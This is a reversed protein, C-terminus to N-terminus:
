ELTLECNLKAPHLFILKYYGRKRLIPFDPIGACDGSSYRFLVPINEVAEGLAPLFGTQKFGFGSSRGQM